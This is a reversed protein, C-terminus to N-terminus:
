FLKAPEEIGVVLTPVGGGGWEVCSNRCSNGKPIQRLKSMLTKENELLSFYLLVM